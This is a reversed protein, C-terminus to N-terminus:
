IHSRCQKILAIYLLRHKVHNPKSAFHEEQLSLELLTPIQIILCQCGAFKHHQTVLCVIRRVLCTYGGAFLLSKLFGILFKRLEKAPSFPSFSVEQQNEKKQLPHSTHSSCSLVDELLISLNFYDTNFSESQLVHGSPFRFM